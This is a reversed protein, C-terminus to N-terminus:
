NAPNNSSNAPIVSPKAPNNSSCSPIVPQNSPNNSSCSPLISPKSPKAPIGEARVAEAAGARAEEEQSPLCHAGALRARRRMGM